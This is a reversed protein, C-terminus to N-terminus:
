CRMTLAGDARCDGWLLTSEFFVQGYDFVDKFAQIGARPTRSKTSRCQRRPRQHFVNAGYVASSWGIRVFLNGLCLASSGRWPAASSNSILAQATSASASTGPAM